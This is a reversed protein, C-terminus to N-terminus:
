DDTTIKAVISIQAPTTAYKSGLYVNSKTEAAPVHYKLLPSIRYMDLVSTNPQVDNIDGVVNSANFGFFSALILRSAIDNPIIGELVKLDDDDDGCEAITRSMTNMSPHGYDDVELKMDLLNCIMDIVDCSRHNSRALATRSYLYHALRLASRTDLGFEYTKHVMNINDIDTLIRVYLDEVRSNMNDFYAHNIHSDNLLPLCLKYGMEVYKSLAHVSPHKPDFWNTKNNYAWIARKTAWLKIGDWLIGCCDIDINHIIDTPSRYNRSIVHIHTNERYIPYEKIFRENAAFISIDEWRDIWGALYMAYEGVVYMGDYLIVCEDDDNVMPVEVLDYLPDECLKLKYMHDRVWEHHLKIAWYDLPYQMDNRHGMMHFVRAVADDMTFDNGQVFLMYQKMHNPECAIDIEEVSVGSLYPSYVVHIPDMDNINLHM